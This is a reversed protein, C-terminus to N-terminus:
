ETLDELALDHSDILQRGELAASLISRYCISNVRRAIGESARHIEIKAEDSFVPSPRGALRTHHDIYRCTEELGMGQMHFYLRIRQKLALYCSLKLIAKLEPQGSLIFTIRNEADFGFNVFAKLARFTSEQADQADDVVVIPKRSCEGVVQYFLRRALHTLYPPPHDLGSLINKYLEVDSLNTGRIYLPLYRNPDLSRILANLVVSKGCGVPGTLVLLDEEGLGYQLRSYAEKYMQSPFVDKAALSKGFPARAFGFADLIPDAM